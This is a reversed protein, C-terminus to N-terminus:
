RRGDPGAALALAVAPAAAATTEGPVLDIPLLVHRPAGVRSGNLRGVVLRVAQRGMEHTARRVTTLRQHTPLYDLGDFGAVSFQAPIRLGQRHLAILLAQALHDNVCFAATPPSALGLMARALETTQGLIPADSPHPHRFVLGEDAALGRDALARRYGEARLRVSSVDVDEFLFLAIRRHGLAALHSTAGYAGGLDDVVVHDDDQDELYRDLLVYPLGAARLRALAARDTPGGLPWLLLGSTGTTLASALQQAELAPDWDSHAVVLQFGHARAEEQAGALTRLHVISGMGPLVLTLTPTSPGPSPTPTSTALTADAVFTGLGRERRLVGQQTLREVARRVTLRAVGFELALENESPFLAGSALGRRGILDLLARELQHYLPIPSTRDLPSM